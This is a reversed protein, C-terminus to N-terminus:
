LRVQSIANLLKNDIILSAPVQCLNLAHQLCCILVLSLVVIAHWM